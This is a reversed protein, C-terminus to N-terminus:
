PEPYMELKLEDAGNKLTVKDNSDVVIFWRGVKEGPHVAISQSTALDRLLVTTGLPSVVIGTLEFRLAPAQPATEPHVATAAAPPPAPKRRSPAFLPRERTASLSDLNLWPLASAPENPLQTQPQNQAHLCVSWMMVLGICVVRRGMTSVLLSQALAWRGLSGASRARLEPSDARRAPRGRASRDDAATKDLGLLSVMRVRALRVALTYGVM